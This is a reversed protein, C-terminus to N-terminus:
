RREQPVSAPSSPTPAPTASVLVPTFFLYEGRGYEPRWYYRGCLMDSGSM